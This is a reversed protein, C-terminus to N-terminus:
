ENAQSLAFAHMAWETLIQNIFTLCLPACVAIQILTHASACRAFPSVSIYFISWRTHHTNFVRNALKMVARMTRLCSHRISENLKIVNYMFLVIRELWYKLTCKKASSVIKYTGTNDRLCTSINDSSTECKM